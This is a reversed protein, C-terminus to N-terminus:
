GGGLERSLKKGSIKLENERKKMRCVIHLSWRVFHSHLFISFRCLLKNSRTPFPPKQRISHCRLSSFPLSNFIVSLPELAHFHTYYRLYTLDIVVNHLSLPSTQVPSLSFFSLVIGLCDVRGQSHFLVDAIVHLVESM